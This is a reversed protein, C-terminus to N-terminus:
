RYIERRHGIKVVVVQKKGDDISYVIRWDGQRVRYREEGSLKESGNPRPDGALARLRAALRKLLPKPVARLEKEASALVRVSYSDM